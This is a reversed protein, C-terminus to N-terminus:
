RKNKRQNRRTQTQVTSETRPSVTPPPPELNASRPQKCHHGVNQDPRPPPQPELHNPPKQKLEPPPKQRPSPPSTNHYQKLQSQHKQGTTSSLTLRTSM